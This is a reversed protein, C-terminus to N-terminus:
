WQIGRAHDKARPRSIHNRGRKTRATKQWITTESTKSSLCSTCPAHQYSKLKVGTTNQMLQKIRDYGIHGMMQHLDEASVEKISSPKTALTSQPEIATKSSMQEIALTPHSKITTQTAMRILIIEDEEYGVAIEVGDRNKIGGDNWDLTLGAKRMKMASLINIPSEPHYWVDKVTHIVTQGNRLQCPLQITGKHTISATGGTGSLIGKAEHMETFWAKNNCVNVKSSTDYTVKLRDNSTFLSLTVWSSSKSEDKEKRNAEQRKRWADTAKDPHKFWCEDEKNDKKCWPCKKPDHDKGMGPPKGKRNKDKHGKSDTALSVAKSQSKKNALEEDHLQSILTDNSLSEIGTDRKREQFSAFHSGLNHIMAHKVIFDVSIKHRAIDQTLIGFKNTYDEMDKCSAYTTTWIREIVLYKQLETNVKYQKILTDIVWRAAPIGDVKRAPIDECHIIIQNIAKDNDPHFVWSDHDDTLDLGFDFDKYDETSGFKPTKEELDSRDQRPSVKKENEPDQSSPDTSSSAANDTQSPNPPPTIQRTDKRYPVFRVADWLGKATMHKELRFLWIALNSAGKLKPVGTDKSM